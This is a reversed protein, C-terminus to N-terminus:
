SEGHPKFVLEGGIDSAEMATIAAKARGVFEDVSCISCSWPKNTCDGSHVASRGKRVYGDAWAFSSSQDFMALVVAVPIVQEDSLPDFEAANM